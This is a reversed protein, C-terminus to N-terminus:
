RILALGDPTVPRETENMGVILLAGGVIALVLTRVSAPVTGAVGLDAVSGVVYGAQM